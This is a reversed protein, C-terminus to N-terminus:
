FPTYADFRNEIKMASLFTVIIVLDEILIMLIDFEMKITM